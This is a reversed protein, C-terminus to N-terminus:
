KNNLLNMLTKRALFIRSKITGIKINLIESIEKYHYGNLYMQFVIYNRSPLNKILQTLEKENYVSEPSTYGKDSSLNLLHLNPIFETTIIRVQKKRYDNIFTNKLITFMWSQLNTNDQYKNRFSIARLYTDQVLDNASEEDRTLKIAFKALIPRMKIIGEKFEFDTM